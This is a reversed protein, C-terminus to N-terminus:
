ALFAAVMGSLAILYVAASTWKLTSQRAEPWRLRGLVVLVAALLLGVGLGIWSLLMDEGVLLRCVNKAVAGAPIFSLAFSVLNHQFSLAVILFQVFLSSAIVLLTTLLSGVGFWVCLCLGVFFVVGAVLCIYKSRM